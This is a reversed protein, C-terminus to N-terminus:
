LIVITGVIILSLNNGTESELLKRVDGPLAIRGLEDITRSSYREM